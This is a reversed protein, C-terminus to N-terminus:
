EIDFMDNRLSEIMLSVEELETMTFTDVDRFFNAIEMAGDYYGQIRPNLELYVEDTLLRLLNYVTQAMDAREVMFDIMAQNDRAFLTLYSLIYLAEVNAGVFVLAYTDAMDSGAFENHAQDLMEEILADRAEQDDTERIKELYAMTHELENQLGLRGALGIAIDVTQRMADMRNYASAYMADSLFAGLVLSLQSSTEHQEAVAFPVTLDFIYAAGTRNLFDFVDNTRPAQQILKVVDDRITAPDFMEADAKTRDEDQKPAQRCGTFSVALVTIILLGQVLKKM